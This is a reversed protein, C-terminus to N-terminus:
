DLSVVVERQSILYAAYSFLNIKIIKYTFMGNWFENM